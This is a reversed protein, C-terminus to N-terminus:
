LDAKVMCSWNFVLTEKIKDNSKSCKNENM